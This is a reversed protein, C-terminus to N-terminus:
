FMVKYTGKKWHVRRFYGMDKKVFWLEPFFLSRDGPYRGHNKACFTNNPNRTKLCQFWFLGLVQTNCFGQLQGGLRGLRVVNRFRRGWANGLPLVELPQWTYPRWVMRPIRWIWLCCVNWWMLAQPFARLLHFTPLFSPNIHTHTSSIYTYIFISLCVSLCVSLCISLYISPHICKNQEM